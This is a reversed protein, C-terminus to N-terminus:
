CVSIKLYRKGSTLRWLCVFNECPRLNRAAPATTGHTLVRRSWETPCRPGLKFRSEAVAPGLDGESRPLVLGVPVGPWADFGFVM